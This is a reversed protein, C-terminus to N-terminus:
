AEDASDAGDGRREELMGPLTFMYMMVLETFRHLEEAEETTYPDDDHSADNGELRIHHAWEGIGKTLAGAKVAQDIRKVLQEKADPYITKLAVDLSKRFMAGAANPGSKVNATAELFFAKVNPPLHEPAEPTAPPPYIAVIRVNTPHSVLHNTLNFVEQSIAGGLPLFVVAVAESCVGCMAFAHIQQPFRTPRYEHLVLFSAQSTGCHPCDHPFAAM